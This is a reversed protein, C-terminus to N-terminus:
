LGSGRRHVKGAELTMGRATLLESVTVLQFGRSKLEPVIVKVAEATSMYIDHMLIIDGDQVNELVHQIVSEADRTEWDRTDLSWLIMPMGINQELEDNYSGYTPRMIVPEVGTVAKLAIQTKEIQYELDEVSLTTLRKHSLSHNGIESGEDIMRKLLDANDHVRNGIVFFTAVADHERLTDLISSTSGPFPGDDFTLAVMPKDPDIERVVHKGTERGGPTGPEEKGGPGPLADRKTYDPARRPEPHLPDDLFGPTDETGTLGALDLQEFDIIGELDEYPIEVSPIGAVGPLIQNKEFLLIFYEQTLMFLSYNEYAPETGGTFLDIEIYDAYDPNAALEDRTLQALKPLGDDVLIDELFIPEETEWDYVFTEITVDPHTYDPMNIVIIFKISVLKDQVLWTEYDVNLEAKHDAHEAVFDHVDSMFGSIIGEVFDRTMADIKDKGFVPYHVGMVCDMGYEIVSEITGAQHNKTNSQELYKYRGGDGAPVDQGPNTSIGEAPVAPVVGVVSCGALGAVVILVLIVTATRPLRALGRPAASQASDLCQFLELLRNAEQRKM